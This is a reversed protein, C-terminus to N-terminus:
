DHVATLFIGISIKMFTDGQFVVSGALFVDNAPVSTEFEPIVDFHSQNKQRLYTMTVSM